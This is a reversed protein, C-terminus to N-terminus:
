VRSQVILVAPPSNTALMARADTVYRTMIVDTVVIIYASLHTQM